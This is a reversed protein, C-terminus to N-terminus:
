TSFIPPSITSTDSIAINQPAYLLRSAAIAEWPAPASSRSSRKIFICLNRQQGYRDHHNHFLRVRTKHRKLIFDVIQVRRHLFVQRIDADNFGKDAAIILFLFKFLRVVIQSHRSDAGHLKDDQIHRDNLQDYIDTNNCDQKESAPDNYIRAQRLQGSRNVFGRPQLRAVQETQNRIYRLNQRRQHHKRHQEQLKCSGSGRSLADQFDQIRFDVDRIRLISKRLNRVARDIKLIHREAITHTGSLIREAPDIQM